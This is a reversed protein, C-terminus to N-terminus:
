YKNILLDNKITNFYNLTSEKKYKIDMHDIQDGIKYAEYSYIKPYYKIYHFQKNIIEILQTIKHSNIFVQKHLPGNLFICNLSRKKCSNELLKLEKLKEKKVIIHDLNQDYVERKKNSYKKKNQKPYDYKFKDISNSDNDFMYELHWWIEKPNFYYGLIDRMELINYAYNFNLLELISNKVFDRNWIDLTHIIIINRINKNKEIAKELIAFSGNIGWSGNLSLNISKLGSIKNFYEADFGHGASSDGLVITDINKFNSNNIKNLQYKKLDDNDSINLDLLNLIFSIFLLLFVILFFVKTFKRANMKKNFILIYSNLFNM